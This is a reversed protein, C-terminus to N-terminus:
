AKHKRIMVQQAKSTKGNKSLNELFQPLLNYRRCLSDFAAKCAPVAYIDDFFLVAGPAAITYFNEYDIFVDPNAHSADIYLLDPQIQHSVLALAGNQSSTRMPIIRHSTNTNLVNNLFVWYMLSSGGVEPEKFYGELTRNTNSSLAGNWQFRVDLLWTDMSIVFSESCGPTSDLIKAMRTSTLGRFVGVELLVRPKVKRIANRLHSNPVASGSYAHKENQSQTQNLLFDITARTKPDKWIDGGHLAKMTADYTPPERGDWVSPPVHLQYSLDVTVMPLDRDAAPADEIFFGKTGKEGQCNSAIALLALLYVLSQAMM